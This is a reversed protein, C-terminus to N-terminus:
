QKKYDVLVFDNVQPSDNLIITRTGTTNYHTVIKQLLGNVFVDVKGPVFDFATTFTANSGNVLGTPTEGFVIDSPVQVEIVNTYGIKVYDPLNSVFLKVNDRAEKVFIKTYTSM